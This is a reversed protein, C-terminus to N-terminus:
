KKKLDKEGTNFSDAILAGLQADVALLDTINVSEIFTEFDIDEQIGCWAITAITKFKRVENVDNVIDLLPKNLKDEIKFLALNNYKFTYENGTISIKM